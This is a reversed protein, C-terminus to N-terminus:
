VGWPMYACRKGRPVICVAGLVHLVYMLLLGTVQSRRLRSETRAVCNLGEIGSHNTRLSLWDQYSWRSSDTARQVPLVVIFIPTFSCCTPSLDWLHLVTLAWSEKAAWARSRPGQLASTTISGKVSTYVRFLIPLSMSLDTRTGMARHEPRYIDFGNSNVMTGSREHCPLSGKKTIM